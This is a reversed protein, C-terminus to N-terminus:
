YTLRTESLSSNIRFDIKEQKRVLIETTEFWHGGSVIGSHPDLSFDVIRFRGPALQEAFLVGGIERSGAQHLAKRLRPEIDPALEIRM